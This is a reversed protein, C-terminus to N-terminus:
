RATTMVALVTFGERVRRATERDADERTPAVIPYGCPVNRALCAALVRQVLAEVQPADPGEAGVSAALDTPGLFIAGIGPVDLIDDLREIGAMSEIQLMAILKGAPELPWVDAVARYEDATLGWYGAADGVGTGSGRQGAAATTGVDSVPGFRMARVATMAQAPTEIDPFMVGFVGLDLLQAVVTQPADRAARPIRVIPAVAPPEGDARMATLVQRIAEVDFEGYQADIVTFDLGDAPRRSFTGIAPADEQLREIVRNVPTADQAQLVPAYLATMALMAAVVWSTVVRKTHSM